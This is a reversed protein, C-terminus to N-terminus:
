LCLALSYYRRRRGLIESELLTMGKKELLGSVASVMEEEALLVGLPLARALPVEVLLFV